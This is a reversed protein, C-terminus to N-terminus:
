GPPQRKLVVKYDTIPNTGRVYVDRVKYHKAENGFKTKGNNWANDYADHLTEGSGDVEDGAIEIEIEWSDGYDGNQEM